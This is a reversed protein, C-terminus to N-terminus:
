QIIKENIENVLELVRKAAKEVSKEVEPSLDVSPETNKPECGLIYTKEPLFGMVNAFVILEELGSEHFSFSYAESSLDIQDRVDARNIEIEHITGPADGKKVADVFVVIDYDDLLNAMTFNATAFDAFEVNPPLNKKFKSSELASLVHQAFGDDGMIKNGIACVLIKSNNGAM